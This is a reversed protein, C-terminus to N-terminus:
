KWINVFICPWFWMFYTSFFEGGCRQTENRHIDFSDLILRLLLPLTHLTCCQPANTCCQKLPFAILIVYESHTNKAKRVWCAILTGPQLINKWTIEYFAYNFLNSYTFHTNQNERCVTGSVNKIRLLIWHFVVMFACQDERLTDTVRTLNPRFKFTRSVNEFLIWIGFKTFVRGAPASNSWASPSLSPRCSSVLLRNECNQSRAYFHCFPLKLASTNLKVPLPGCGNNHFPQCAARRLILILPM